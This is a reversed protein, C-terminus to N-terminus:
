NEGKLIPIIRELQIAHSGKVLIVANEPLSNLKRNAILEEVTNYHLIPSENEPHFIRSYNGVTILQEYHMESLMASIMQHYMISSEGLELMDGLIAYHPLEPNLEQWYELAKQMSYPNANYCDLILLGTGRKEVQNRLELQIPENLATQIKEKKIGLKLGLVIAFASNLAFHPAGYPLVWLDENLYFSQNESYCKHQTIRYDCNENYGISIGENAFCKFRYDDGPYLRLALPRKFLTIKERFVGEEDGFYELHSPGINLIIGIDPNAVEALAAIEGFHNTGLEFIAYQQEPKIRIITKCLGIINNENALTKLVPASSQLVQAMLEKCTTKGTSGTLAIKKAPFLQLYKRSILGMVKLCNDVQYYRNKESSQNLPYPIEGIACNEKIKLIDELYSHGDYREGKIAIFVSGPKISRSDTSLFYYSSPERYGKPEPEWNPTLLLKLLTQDIPLILEDDDKNIAERESLAKLTEERDNFHHRIGEIEQYDESGKGCILVIDEKQALRIISTIAQQRNRIIWWPLFIDASSVIDKIIAEPNESRPNDDSIIVVDSHNLASKLMLPRKGKDRDGGTGMLTLIRKHPLDEVAKLVNEIAEPTHAYDIFIGINCNNEVRELRGKVPPIDQLSHHIEEPSFGLAYLTLAALGLNQINFSGILRSTVSIECNEAVLKFSSKSIDTKIDLYQFEADNSGLSYVKAKKEKLMDRIQVGFSDATNIVSISGDKAGQEFFSMKAKGYNELTQHFDLHDYGLNSFLCYDFKVGYIRDLSLSHSSVEMVVYDVKAKIMQAFIENLEIIDPTTRESPFTKGEIYYGLTGIWGCRFGLNRLAEYLILSTTTKGNTGTIGILTYTIKEPLMVTRAIVAAAKRSDKVKIYPIDKKNIERCVILAAGKELASNIFNHGDFNAGQICVFIDGPKIKRNDTQVKGQWNELKELNATEVLLSHQKLADLIRYIM